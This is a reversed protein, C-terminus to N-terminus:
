RGAERTKHGSGPRLKRFLTSLVPTSAKKKRPPPVPASGDGPAHNMAELDDLTDAFSM